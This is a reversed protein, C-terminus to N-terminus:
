GALSLAFTPRPWALVPPWEFWPKVPGGFHSVVKADTGLTHWMIQEITGRRPVDFNNWRYGDAPDAEWLDQLVGQDFYKLPAKGGEFWLDRQPVVVKVRRGWEAVLQRDRESDFGLVGACPYEGISWTRAPNGLLRHIQQTNPHDAEVPGHNPAFPARDIATFVDQTSGAVTTDADLWLVQDSDDM